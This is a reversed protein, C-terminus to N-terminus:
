LKEKKAFEVYEEKSLLGKMEEAFKVKLKDTAEMYSITESDIHKNISELKRNYKLYAAYVPKFKGTEFKTLAKLEKTQSMADEKATSQASVVQTSMGLLFTFACLRIINKM